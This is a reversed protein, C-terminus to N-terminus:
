PQLEAVPEDAHAHEGNTRYVLGEAHYFQVIPLEVFGAIPGPKHCETLYTVTVVLKYPTSCYDASIEGPKFKFDYAYKGDGCPKLPLKESEWNREPGKGISELCVRVCWDGCIYETLSGKLYWDVKVGWEQDTRIITTPRVGDREYITASIDGYLFPEYLSAELKGDYKYMTDEMKIKSSTTFEPHSGTLRGFKKISIASLGQEHVLM